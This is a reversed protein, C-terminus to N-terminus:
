FVIWTADDAIQYIHAGLPGGHILFKTVDFVIFCGTKKRCDLAAIRVLAGNKFKGVTWGAVRRDEDSQAV